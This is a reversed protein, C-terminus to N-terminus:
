SGSGSVLDFGFAGSRETLYPLLRGQATKEQSAALRLLDEVKRGGLIKLLPTQVDSEEVAHRAALMRLLVAIALEVEAQRIQEDPSELFEQRLDRRVDEHAADLAQQLLEDPILEADVAGLQARLITTDTFAM